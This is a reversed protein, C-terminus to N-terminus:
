TIHDSHLELNSNLMSRLYESKVIGTVKLYTKEEVPYLTEEERNFLM